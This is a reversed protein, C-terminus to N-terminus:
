EVTTVNLTVSKLTEALGELLVTALPEGAVKLTVNVLRFPKEPLTVKDALMDGTTVLPGVVDSEGVLTVSTDPPAPIDVSVIEEVL